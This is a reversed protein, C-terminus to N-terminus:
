NYDIYFFYSQNDKSAYSPLVGKRTKAITAKGDCYGKYAAFLVM